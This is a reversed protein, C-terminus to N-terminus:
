LPPVIMVPVKAYSALHTGLSSSFFRQALGLRRSGCIVLPSQLDISRQTISDEAPGVVIECQLDSLGHRECFAALSHEAAERATAIREDLLTGSYPLPEPVRLAHVLTVARHLRGALERATNAANVSDKTPAIACVIPGDGLLSPDLDPPVVIVPGPLERTIRRAVRGLRVVSRADRAASRGIILGDAKPSRAAQALHHEATTARVVTAQTLTPGAEAAEIARHMTANAQELVEDLHRRRLLVMMEDHELVCLGHTEYDAGDIHARLWTAFRLAGQSRDRTDIGLIWRM